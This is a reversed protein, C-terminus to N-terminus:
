FMWEQIHCDFDGTPMKSALDTPITYGDDATAWKDLKEAVNGRPFGRLEKWCALTATSGADSSGRRIRVRIGNSTNVILVLPSKSRGGWCYYNSDPKPQLFVCAGNGMKYAHHIGFAVQEIKIHRSLKGNTKKLEELLNDPLSGCFETRNLIVSSNDTTM